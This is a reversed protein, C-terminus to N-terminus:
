NIPHINTILKDRVQFLIQWKKTLEMESTIPNTWVGIEERKYGLHPWRFDLQLLPIFVTLLVCDIRGVKKIGFFFPVLKGIDFIM